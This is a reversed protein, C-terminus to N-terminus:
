ELRDKQALLRIAVRIAVSVGGLAPKHVNEIVNRPV